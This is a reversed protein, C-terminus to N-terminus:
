VADKVDLDQLVNAQMEVDFAEKRIRQNFYLITVGIVWLPFTVVSIALHVGTTLLYLTLNDPGFVSSGITAWEIIAMLDIAGAGGSLILIVGFSIEFVAHIATSMLFVALLMGCMRWWMGSVLASSRKLAARVSTGELLLTEVFFGWRVAFYIAFPIGIITITLVAIVLVWLVVSAILPFFRQVVHQLAARATIPKELYRSAAVVVIGGISVVSLSLSIIIAIALPLSDQPTFDLSVYLILEAFIAIAAIQAFLRFSRRYLSFMGDLIDTFGIPQLTQIKTDESKSTETPPLM